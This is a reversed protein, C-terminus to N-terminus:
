YICLVESLILSHLCGRVSNSSPERTRNETDILLSGVLVVVIASTGQKFPYSSHKNGLAQFADFSFLLYFQAINPVRGLSKSRPLQRSVVSKTDYKLVIYLLTVVRSSNLM